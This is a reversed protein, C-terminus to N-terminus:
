DLHGDSLVFLVIWEHMSTSLPVQKHGDNAEHEPSCKRPKRGAVSSM